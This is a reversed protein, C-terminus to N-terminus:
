AHRMWLSRSATWPAGRGVEYSNWGGSILTEAAIKHTLTGSAAYENPPDDKVGERQALALAGHCRSWTAAKSPAFQAHM